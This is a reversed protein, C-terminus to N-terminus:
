SNNFVADWLTELKEKFSKIIENAKDIIHGANVGYTIDSKFQVHPASEDEYVARM